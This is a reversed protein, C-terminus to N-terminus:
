DYMNAALPTESLTADSSFSSKKPKVAQDRDSGNTSYAVADIQGGKQASVINYSTLKMNGPDLPAAFSSRAGVKYSSRLPNNPDAETNQRPPIAGTTGM